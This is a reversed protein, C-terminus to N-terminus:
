NSLIQRLALPITSQHFILSINLRNFSFHLRLVEFKIPITITIVFTIQRFIELLRKSSSVFVTQDM